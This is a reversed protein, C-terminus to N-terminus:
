KVIKSLTEYEVVVGSYKEENANFYENNEFKLFCYTEKNTEKNIIKCKRYEVVDLQQCLCFDVYHEGIGNTGSVFSWFCSEFDKDSVDKSMIEKYRTYEDDNMSMKNVKEDFAKDPRDTSTIMLRSRVVINKFSLTREQLIEPNTINM